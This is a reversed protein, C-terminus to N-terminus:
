IYGLKKAERNATANRDAREKLTACGCSPVWSEAFDICRQFNGKKTTTIKSGLVGYKRADKYLNKIFTNFYKKRDLANEGLIEGAMVARKAQERSDFLGQKVLLVDIREKKM